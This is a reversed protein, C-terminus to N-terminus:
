QKWEIGFVMGIGKSHVLGRIREERGDDLWKKVLYEGETEIAQPIPYPLTLPSTNLATKAIEIIYKFEVGTDRNRMRYDWARFDDGGMTVEIKEYEYKGYRTTMVDEARGDAM